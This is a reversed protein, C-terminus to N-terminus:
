SKRGYRFSVSVEPLIEQRGIHRFYYNGHYGYFTFLDIITRVKEENIFLQKVLPVHNM